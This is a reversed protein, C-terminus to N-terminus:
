LFVRCPSFSPDSLLAEGLIQGRNNIAIGQSNPHHALSGLDHQRGQDWLFARSCAIHPDYGKRIGATCLAQGKDNIGDVESWNDTPLTGLDIVQYHSNAEAALSNGVASFPQGSGRFFIALTFIFVSFGVLWRKAM